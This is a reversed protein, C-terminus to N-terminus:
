QPTRGEQLAQVIFVVVSQTPEEQLKIRTKIYGSRKKFNQQLVLM